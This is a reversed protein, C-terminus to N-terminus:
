TSQADPTGLAQEWPAILHSRLGAASPRICPAGPAITTPSPGQSLAPYPCACCYTCCAPNSASYRRLAFHQPLCQTTGGGSPLRMASHSATGMVVKMTHATGNRQHTRNKSTFSQAHHHHSFLSGRITVGVREQQKTRLRNCRTALVPQRESVQRSAFHHASALLREICRLRRRLQHLTGRSEAHAPRRRSLIPWALNGGALARMVWCPLAVHLACQGM